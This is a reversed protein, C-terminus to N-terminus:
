KWSAMPLNLNTEFNNPSRPLPSARYWASGAGVFRPRPPCPPGHRPLATSQWPAPLSCPAPKYAEFASGTPLCPKPPIGFLAAMIKSEAYYAERQDIALPPLVADHALLASEILTAYVWLLANVENAQYRAGQPYAAVSAPITGRHAHAPPFSPPVRGIGSRTNRLDHHVCRPVYGHFRRASRLPSEFAPRSRGAVWPHALQLLSARGAGLFLAAERNVMWSISSPGFIGARPDATRQAISSWLREIAQLTVPQPNSEM